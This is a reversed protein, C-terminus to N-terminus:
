NFYAHETKQESNYKFRFSWSQAFALKEQRRIRRAKLTQGLNDRVESTHSPPHSGSDPSGRDRPRPTDPSDSWDCALMSTEHGAEALWLGTDLDRSRMIALWLETNLHRCLRPLQVGGLAAVLVHGELDGEGADVLHPLTVQSPKAGRRLEGHWWVGVVLM